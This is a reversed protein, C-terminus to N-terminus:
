LSSIIDAILPFGVIASAVGLSLFWLAEKKDWDGSWNIIDKSKIGRKYWLFAFAKRSGSTVIPGSWNFMHLRDWYFKEVDNVNKEALRKKYDKRKDRLERHYFRFWYIGSVTQSDLFLHAVYGFFLGVSFPIAQPLGLLGVIFVSLTCILAGYLTHSFGRHKLFPIKVDLDPLIGGVAGGAVMMGANIAAEPTGGSSVSTLYVAAAEGALVGGISHTPKHM